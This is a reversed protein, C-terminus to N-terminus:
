EGIAEYLKDVIPELESPIGEQWSPPEIIEGSLAIFMEDPIAVKRKIYAKEKTLDYGSNYPDAKPDFGYVQNQYFGSLYNHEITSILDINELLYDRGQDICDQRDQYQKFFAPNMYWYLMLITGKDTDPQEAIWQLVKIGNDFIWSTLFQQREYPGHKKLFDIILETSLREYEEYDIEVEDWDVNDELLDKLTLM